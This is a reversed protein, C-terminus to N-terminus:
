VFQNMQFIPLLIALVILLVVFGMVLIMIPEFLSIFTAILNEIDKEQYSAARDLMMELKGSSEGSAILHISMGPFYNTEKLARSINVGEKVKQMAQQLADQILLNSVVQNSTNMADLVSVGARTLIGFTRAYRATNSVKIIRSVLPLRLLFKHFKYRNVKQQLARRFLVIGIILLLLIYIGFTQLFNSLALLMVTLTPLDRGADKFVDVMQPVVYMLLFVVISTSVTIMMTPYISAQKIKQKLYFQQETYEALNELVMDLYGSHEGAQITARYLEPFAEKYEGMAASLSHGELVKSRVTGIIRKIKENDSQQAIAILSEDVPLGSSLLTALQRTVLALEAVTLSNKKSAFVSKRIKINGDTAIIKIDIPILDQERLKNRVSTTSDAEMAGHFEKGLKNVAQYDFIPM